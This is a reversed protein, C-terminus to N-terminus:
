LKFKYLAALTKQYQNELTYYNQLSQYIGNTEVFYEIMSLQGANLAKSLLTLNDQSQLIHRFERLSAQLALAQDYLNKLETETQLTLDEVRTETYINQAKAQKIKNQNEYLPISVGAVFGNFQEGPGTNHRYGLEFKPFWSSKSLSIQQRAITRDTKATQLDPDATLARAKLEEFDPLANVPPYATGTFEVPQNGNLSTLERMKSQRTTENTQSEIKINMLELDIKNTELINANGAQLKQQYLISLREANKLRQELLDKQQNLYILDLCLERAKLLVRQRVAAYQQDLKVSQMGALKNKNIYVTPFDFSQSVTLEGTKGLEEPSGILYEYTVSPDPLSNGTRAALKDARTLQRSAQLEKNHTEISNLIKEITDQAYIGPVSLLGIILLAHKM